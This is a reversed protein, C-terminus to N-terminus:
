PRVAALFVSSGFPLDRHNLVQEDWRCLGLLLRELGPGVQPVDVVDAPRHTRGAVRHRVARLAREAAFL